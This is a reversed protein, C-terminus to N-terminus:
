IDGGLLLLNHWVGKCMVATDIRDDLRQWVKWGDCRKDASFGAESHERRYYESLFSFPDLMLNRIIEKWAYPGKITTNDKPIIYITTNKDFVNTTSQSGYYQDLRASDSIVGAEYMMKVAKNFADRESRMSAAYGVYMHTELDMLAFAYTFLKKKPKIEQPANNAANIEQNAVETSHKEVDENTKISDGEKERLSRYHKTITLSYGTGDGTIDSNSIGKRRIMIIFMNHIIMKAQPNSYAREITKYGADIGSLVSFFALLNAMKRNSLQFIDKLLLILVKQKTSINTPHGFHKSKVIISDAEEIVPMIEKSATKIRLAWQQEYTRWDRKKKESFEGKYIEVIADFEQKFEEFQKNTIM